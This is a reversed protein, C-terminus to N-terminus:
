VSVFANGCTMVEKAGRAFGSQYGVGLSGLHSHL